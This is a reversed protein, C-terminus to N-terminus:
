LLENQIVCYWNHHRMPILRVESVLYLTYIGFKMMEPHNSQNSVTVICTDYYESNTNKSASCLVRAICTHLAYM